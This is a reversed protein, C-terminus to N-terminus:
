AVPRASAVTCRRDCRVGINYEAGTTPMLHSALRQRWECLLETETKSGNALQETILNFQAENILGVNQMQRFFM